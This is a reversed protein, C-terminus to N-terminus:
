SALRDCLRREVEGHHRVPVWAQGDYCGAREAAEDLMALLRERNCVASRIRQEAERPSLGGLPGIAKAMEAEVAGPLRHRWADLQINAHKIKM